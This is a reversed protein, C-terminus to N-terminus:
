APQAVCADCRRPFGRPHNSEALERYGGQVRRRGGHTQAASLKVDDRAARSSSLPSPWGSSPASSLAFLGAGDMRCRSSNWPEDLIALTQHLHRGCVPAAAPSTLSKFLNFRANVNRSLAACTGQWFLCTGM